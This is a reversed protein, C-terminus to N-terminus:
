TAATGTASRAVSNHEHGVPHQFAVGLPEVNGLREPTAPVHMGAFEDVREARSNQPGGPAVQTIVGGDDAEVPM